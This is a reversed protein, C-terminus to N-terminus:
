DEFRSESPEALMGSIGGREKLAYGRFPSKAPRARRTEKHVPIASRQGDQAASRRVAPQTLQEAHWERAPAAARRQPDADGGMKQFDERSALVRGRANSASVLSNREAFGRDLTAGAARMENPGESRLNVEAGHATAASLGTQVVLNGRADLALRKAQGQTGQAAALGAGAPGQAGRTGDALASDGERLQQVQTMSLGSGEFGSLTSFVSGMDVRADSEGLRQQQAGLTGFGLSDASGRLAAASTGGQRRSATQGAANGAAAGELGSFNRPPGGQAEHRRAATQAAANGAAAAELGALARKEPDSAAAGRLGQLSAVVSAANVASMGDLHSVFGHSPAEFADRALRVEGSAVPAADGYLAQANVCRTPDTKGEIDRAAVSRRINARSEEAPLGTVQGLYDTRTRDKRLKPKHNKPREDGGPLLTANSTWNKDDLEQTPLLYPNIRLRNNYGEFGFPNRTMEMETPVLENRNFYLDRNARQNWETQVDAEIRFTALQTAVGADGPQIPDQQERKRHAAIVNGEAALLRRQAQKRERVGDGPDRGNNPPPMADEFVDAVEGTYTNIFAGTAIVPQTTEIPSMFSEPEYAAATGMGIPAPGAAIQVRATLPLTTEKLEQRVPWMTGPQSVLWCGLPTPEAQAAPSDALNVAPSGYLRQEPRPEPVRPPPMPATPPAQLVLSRPPAETQAPVTPAVVFRNPDYPRSADEGLITALFSKM